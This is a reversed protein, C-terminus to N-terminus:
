LWGTLYKKGRPLERQKSEIYKVFERAKLYRKRITFAMSRLSGTPLQLIQATKEYSKKEVLADIFNEERETLWINKPIKRKIVKRHRRLATRVNLSRM